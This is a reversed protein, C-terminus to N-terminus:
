DVKILANVRKRKNYYLLDMTLGLQFIVLDISNDAEINTRNIQLSDQNKTFPFTNTLFSIKHGSDKIKQAAQKTYHKEEGGVWCFIDINGGTKSELLVKSEFVEHHITTSTDADNMRHHSYTHNGIVHSMYLDKIENWSMMYRGDAYTPTINPNDGGVFFSQNETTYEVCGPPIFFWGTFGYHELLPKAYDYNSRHGDDFSIIIGPKKKLWKKNKVFAKLDSLTTNSYYKSYFKLQEEFNAMFQPPTGHYNVVRIHERGHLLMNINFLLRNLGIVSFIKVLLLKKRM